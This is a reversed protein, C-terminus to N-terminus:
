QDNRRNADQQAQHNGHHSIAARVLNQKFAELARRSRFNRKRIGIPPPFGLKPDRSWRWLTMSTIGFERCVQADPVFTDPPESFHQDGSSDEGDDNADGSSQTRQIVRRSSRAACIRARYREVCERSAASPKPTRPSPPAFPAVSAMLASFTSLM